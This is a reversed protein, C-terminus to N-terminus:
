MTCKSPRREQRAIAPFKWGWNDDWTKEEREEWGAPSGSVAAAPWEFFILLNDWASTEEIEPQKSPLLLPLGPPSVIHLFILFFFGMSLLAFTALPPIPVSSESWELTAFLYNYLDLHRWYHGIMGYLFIWLNIYIHTTDPSYRPQQFLQHFCTASHKLM